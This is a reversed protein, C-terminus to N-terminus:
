CISPSVTLSQVAYVFCFSRALVEIDGNSLANLGAEGVAVHYPQRRLEALIVRLFIYPITFTVTLKDGPRAHFILVRSLRATGVIM